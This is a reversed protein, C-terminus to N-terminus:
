VLNKGTQVCSHCETNEAHFKRESLTLEGAARHPKKFISEVKQTVKEKANVVKTTLCRTKSRRTRLFRLRKRAGACVEHSAVCQWFAKEESLITGSLSEEEVADEAWLGYGKLLQGVYRVVGRAWGRVGQHHGM